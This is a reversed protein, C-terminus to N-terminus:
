KGKFKTRALEVESGIFGWSNWAEGEVVSEFLAKAGASDGHYLHWNGLGYSATNFALEAELDGPTAPRPPLLSDEALEGQYFHLLRLYTYLHPETNTVRPQVRQLAQAAQEESGARRLSVYLWNSCDILSDDSKALSRAKEFSAAAENFEGLFYHALGLHYYADLMGPALQVARQLDATAQKFQRLGLERHGRELYLDASKPTAALGQTCTLIAEKYQRRAAQAQSLALVRVPNYPDTALQDRAAVVRGDDPLSVLQRGLGSIVEPRGVSMAAQARLPDAQVLSAVLVAASITALRVQRRRISWLSATM